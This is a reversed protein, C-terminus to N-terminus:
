KGAAAKVQGRSNWGYAFGEKYAKAAFMSFMANHGCKLYMNFVESGERAMDVAKASIEKEM